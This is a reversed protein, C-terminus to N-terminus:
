VAKMPSFDRRPSFPTLDLDPTEGMVSQAMLSGTAASLLIGHTFHGAAVWLGDWNPAKGLFPLGDASGPRLGSWAREVPYLTLGPLAREAGSRLRGIVEETNRKDFGADELTSGVYILGDARPVLYTYARELGTFLISRLLGPRARYIFAQGRIPKVPLSFELKEALIGSWAGGALVVEDAEIIGKGTRVGRIKKGERLFGEVEEGAKLQVGGKRLAGFLAQNL